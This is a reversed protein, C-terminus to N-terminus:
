RFSIYGIVYIFFLLIPACGSAAKEVGFSTKNYIKNYMAKDPNRFVGFGRPAKMRLNHAVYRKLSLKATLRKKFSPIRLGFKM